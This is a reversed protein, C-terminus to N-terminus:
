DHRHREVGFGNGNGYQMEMQIDSDADPVSFMYAQINLLSFTRNDAWNEGAQRWRFKAETIAPAGTPVTGVAWTADIRLAVTSTATPRPGKNPSLISANFIDGADLTGTQSWQGYGNTNGTRVEMEIDESADPVTFTRSRVTSGLTFTQSARWPEGEQRWRFQYGNVAPAGSPVSGAVWAANVSLNATSTATPQPGRNPFLVTADTIDAAVIDGTDSWAGYGNTNGAQVEMEIDLNSDPVDFSYARVNGLTFTQAAVWQEGAQRWRFQYRNIAPAGAPVTGASWTADVELSDTSTAAPTPGRNPRLITSDTIDGADIEGTQSWEGYGNVNRTRVQMKVDENSDPVTFTHARVTSGLTFTQAARWPEGDQRWRFQQGNIGPAGVPVTGAAWAADISLSSTSTATPQPGRNPLLLASDTIDAADIDGTSSWAGYGNSNGTRVEMEIDSFSDPVLFSYARVNSGLTFTQATSWGDGDQRWRFQYGNVAPAGSPVSGAAWTADVRLSQTSTAAPKPGRDPTLVTADTIDGANITGTNSWEGFGNTNGTQVEMQINSFSDPVTFMYARVNGLTFTQSTSWNEGAQRWRFKYRSVAPAGGPVTGASWTSDIRLSVSSTAAPTPGKNPIRPQPTIDAALITGTDSWAGFGNSNGVQVEMEIDDNEDPVTVMISRVDELTTTRDESWDEGAQRWRFRYSNIVPTGVGVTGAAWSADVRLSVTSTATPTPGKDPKQIATALALQVARLATWQRDNETRLEDDPCQPRRLPDSDLSGVATTRDLLIDRLVISGDPATPKVAADEDAADSGRSLSIIISDDICLTHQVGQDDTVTLSNAAAYSALVTVWVVMTGTPRAVGALDIAENARLRLRNGRVYAEGVVVHTQASNLTLGFICGEMAHRATSSFQDAAAAMFTALWDAELVPGSVFTKKDM